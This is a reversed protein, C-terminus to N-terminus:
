DRDMLYVLGRTAWVWFKGIFCGSCFSWPCAQELDAGATTSLQNFWEDMEDWRGRSNALQKLPFYCFHGNGTCDSFFGMEAALASASGGQAVEALTVDVVQGVAALDKEIAGPWIWPVALVRWGKESGCVVLLECKSAVTEKWQDKTWSDGDNVHQFGCSLESKDRDRSFDEGTAANWSHDAGNWFVSLVSHSICDQLAM